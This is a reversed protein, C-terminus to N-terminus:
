IKRAPVGQQPVGKSFDIDQLNIEHLSSVNDPISFSTM